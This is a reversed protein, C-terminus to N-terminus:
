EIQVIKLKKRTPGISGERVEGVHAGILLKGIPAQYSVANREKLILYSGIQFTQVDGTFEDHITVIKGIRVTSNDAIPEVVRAHARVQFLEEARNSWMDNQRQGEDYAPNDHWTNSDSETGEGLDSLVTRITAQVEAIRKDLEEIDEKLFLFQPM